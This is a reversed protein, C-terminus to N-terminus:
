GLYLLAHVITLINLFHKTPGTLIGASWSNTDPYKLHLRMHLKLSRAQISFLLFPHIDFHCYVLHHFTQFDLFRSTCLFDAAGTLCSRSVVIHVQSLCWVRYCALPGITWLLFQRSNTKHHESLEEMHILYSFIVM